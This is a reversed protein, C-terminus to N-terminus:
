GGARIEFPRQRHLVVWYAHESLAEGALRALIERQQRPCDASTLEARALEFLEFMREYQEAQTEHGLRDTYTALAGGLAPLVVMALIVFHYDEEDILRWSGVAPHVVLGLLAVVIGAAIAIWSALKLGHGWRRDRRAARQFFGRQGAVWHDIAFALGRDDLPPPTLRNDEIRLAMAISEVVRAVHGPYHDAPEGPLGAIHWFFSVRLAEALARYELFRPQIRLRTMTIYLGFAIVLVVIYAGLLAPPHDHDHAHEALAVVGLGGLTLLLRWGRRVWAQRQIALADAAAYLDVIRSLSSAGPPPAGGDYLGARSDEIRDASSTALRKADRNFRSIHRAMAVVRQWAADDKPWELAVAQPKMGSQRPTVIRIVVGDPESTARGNRKLDVIEATGGSKGADIGDWLALLVHCTRAVVTGASRYAATRPQEGPRPPLHDVVFSREAQALLAEFDQRSEASAFDACYDEAPLPLPVVLRHGRELAVRAALRDAGEALSSLVLLPCAFDRELREFAERLCAEVEPRAAPDIDRHGTVGICLSLEPSAM